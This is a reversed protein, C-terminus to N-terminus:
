RPGSWGVAVVVVGDGGVAQGLRGLGGGGVLDPDGVDGVDGGLDAPKVQGGDEVKVAALDHAPGHAFGEAGGQDELGQGHGDEVAIGRGIEEEMRVPAHLVGGPIEPGSQGVGVQDGGHTAPAVTVVIGGHFAEPAGEFQFENVPTVEGAMVLSADGDEVVDLREIIAFAKM